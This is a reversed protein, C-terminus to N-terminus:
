VSPAMSHLNEWRDANENSVWVMGGQGKGDPVPRMKTKFDDYDNKELFEGLAAYSAKSASQMLQSADEEGLIVRHLADEDLGGDAAEVVGEKLANLFESVPLDLGSVTKLAVKAIVATVQVAPFVKKVWDRTKGFAYGEGDIGCPVPSFDYPCLFQLRMEKRGVTRVRTYFSKFMAKSLVRNKREIGTAPGDSRPTHERVVFLHPYAFNAAQLSKLCALSQRSSAAVKDLKGEIEDLRVDLHTELTDIRDMLAGQGEISRLSERHFPLGPFNEKLLTSIATEMRRVKNEVEDSRQPGVVNVEIEAKRVGPVNLYLLVESGGMMFSIGRSWACHFHVEEISLLRVMLMGIFGPPIYSQWVCVILQRRWENHVCPASFEKLQEESVYGQLRVPVFLAACSGGGISVSGDFSSRDPGSFVVGHKLMTELLRDFLGEQDMDKVLRWLFRLYSETLTGTACFTRHAKVLEYFDLGPHDDAFTLLESEWFGSEAPDQLRHDLIAGLLDNLWTPELHLLDNDLLFMGQGQKLGVTDELVAAAGDAGIESLFESNEVIDRWIQVADQWPLFRIPAGNALPPPTQLEAAVAPDTGERLADMVAAARAWITPITQGISPFLKDNQGSATDCTTSRSILHEATGQAALDAIARGLEPWNDGTKCSMAHIKYVVRLTPAAPMEGTGVVARWGREYETCKATLHEAVTQRLENVITEVVQEDGLKDAHTAIIGSREIAAYYRIIAELGAEVVTRPPEDWPNKLINITSLRKLKLLREATEKPFVRFSNNNIYLKELGELEGLWEPIAGELNNGGLHLVKLHRLNRLAAPLEGRFSNNSIFLKELGELEGLLGPIAGRDNTSLRLAKLHHHDNGLHLVKLHRLNKLAAPLEWRFSKDSLALEELNELEGLWEPIAGKLDTGRLHLVKLNGLKRLDAPLKGQFSNNNIYLEELGELEGLWEPVKGVLKNNGLHLVQLHRLSKLAAPLGDRFSNNNVYLKELGELEGLWKPIAGELNNSGLHIVKLHRLNRLTAPLKGKLGKDSLRLEIVHGESDATVGDWCLNNRWYPGDTAESFALLAARESELIIRPERSATATLENGRGPTKRCRPPQPSFGAMEGRHITVNVINWIPPVLTMPSLFFVLPTELGYRSGMAFFLMCMVKVLVTVAFIVIMKVKKRAALLLADGSSSQDHLTTRTEKENEWIVGIKQLQEQMQRQQRLSEDIGNVLSKGCVCFTVMVFTSLILIGASIIIIAAEAYNAFTLLVAVVPAISVLGYTVHHGRRTELWRSIRLVEPSEQLVRRDNTYIWMRTALIPVSICVPVQLASLVFLSLWVEGGVVMAFYTISLIAVLIATVHLQRRCKEIPSSAASAQEVHFMMNVINWILPGITMPSAFFFLPTEFGYRTAMALILMGDIGALMVAAFIVVTKVKKRAALLMADGGTRQDQLPERASNGAPKSRALTVGMNQLQEQKNDQQELSGDIGRLLSIGCVCFIIALSTAFILIGASLAIVAAEAYNAFALLVAVVPAILVLTYIWMRTSSVPMSIFPPIQSVALVILSLQLEDGVVLAFYIIFLIAALIATVHLERRCQEIPSAAARAQEEHFRMDVDSEEAPATEFSVAGVAADGNLGAATADGVGKVPAPPLLEDYDPLASPEEAGEAGGGDEKATVAATAPEEEVPADDGGAVGEGEEATALAEREQQVAPPRPDQAALADMEDLVDDAADEDPPVWEELVVAIERVKELTAQTRGLEAKMDISGKYNAGEGEEQDVEAALEDAYDKLESIEVRVLESATRQGGNTISVDAGAELLLEVTRLDGMKCAMHLPTNGQFPEPRDIDAGVVLLTAVISLKKQGAPLRMATHLPIRRDGRPTNVRAGHQLVTRVLAPAENAVASHLPTYRVEPDGDDKNVDAGLELLTAVVGAATDAGIIDCFALTYNLPNSGLGPEAWSFDPGGMAVTWPREYADEYRCDVDGGEMAFRRIATLDGKFCSVFCRIPHSAALAQGGSRRRTQSSRLHSTSLKSDYDIKDMYDQLLPHTGIKGPTESSKPYRYALTGDDRVVRAFGDPLPSEVLEVATWWQHRYCPDNIGLDNATSAIQRAIPWLLPCLPVPEEDTARHDIKRAFTKQALCLPLQKGAQPIVTSLGICWLLVVSADESGFDYTRAPTHVSFYCWESPLRSKPASEWEKQLIPTELGVTVGRVANNGGATLDMSKAGSMKEDNGWSLTKLDDSIKLWKVATRKKSFTSKTVKLMRTGKKLAELLEFNSMHVGTRHNIRVNATYLPIHRYPYDEKGEEKPKAPAAEPKAVPQRPIQRIGNMQADRVLRELSEQLVASGGRSKDEDMRIANAVAGPVLIDMGRAMDVPDPKAEPRFRALAQMTAPAQRFSGEQVAALQVAEQEEVAARAAAAAAKEAEVAAKAAEKAAEEQEELSREEAVTAQALAAEEEAKAQLEEAEQLALKCREVTDVGLEVGVEDSAMAILSRLTGMDPKDRAMEKEMAQLVPAEQLHKLETRIARADDVEETPAKKVRTELEKLEDLIPDLAELHPVPDGGEEICTGAGVTVKRLKTVLEKRHQIDRCLSRASELQPDRVGIASAAQIAKILNDFDEEEMAAHVRALAEERLLERILLKAEDVQPSRLRLKTALAVAASLDERSRSEIAATLMMEAEKRVHEERAADLTRQTATRLFIKTTGLHFKGAEMHGQHVLEASIREAEDRWAAPAMNEGEVPGQFDPQGPGRGVIRGYKTVFENHPYRVSFGRQRIEVIQVMGMWNLQELIYGGQFLMPLQEENPKVCRIYHPETESIAAMLSGLSGVFKGTVLVSGKQARGKVLQGNSASGLRRHSGGTPAGRRKGRAGGSGGEDGAYEELLNAVFRDNSSLVLDHLASPVEDRNKEVFETADYIVEGAFHVVGFTAETGARSGGRVRPVAFRDNGKFVQRYRKGLNLGTGTKLTSEEKLLSLIGKPRGELLRLVDDNDAFEVRCHEVYVKSLGQKAFEEEELKFVFANFQQQLRENAYNILLQELSNTGFAEFGFIDLLGIFRNNTDTSSKSNMAATLTLNIKEVLWDFLSSYLAKAVADRASAAVLPSSPVILTGSGFGGPSIIRAVLAKELQDPKVGLLKSAWELSSGEGKESVESGVDQGPIDVTDFEVNLLQLVAAVVRFVGEQQDPGLGISEMCRCTESFSEKDDISNVEVCDGGILSRFESAQKLGLRERMDDSAGECLQYFVHYSREGELQRAVRTKELLYTTVRGGTVVGSSHLTVQIYKGFRSSNHNRTTKANAFAEMVPNSMVVSDEVSFRGGISNRRQDINPVSERREKEMTSSRHSLYSLLYKTTETKGAGSEGSILVSQSRHDTILGRYALEMLEYPHPPAGADTAMNAYLDMCKEDYLSPILVYPNIAALISGVSTYIDRNAYRTRLNHLVSGVTLIDMKVMDEVGKLCSPDGRQLREESVKTVTETRGSEHMLELSMDEGQGNTAGVTAPLWGELEDKVFVLQGSELSM